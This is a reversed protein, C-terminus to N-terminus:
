RMMVVAGVLVATGVGGAILMWEWTPMGDDEDPEPKTKFRKINKSQAGTNRGPMKRRHHQQPQHPLKRLPPSPQTAKHILHGLNM